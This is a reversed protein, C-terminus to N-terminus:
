FYESRSFLREEFVHHMNLEIRRWATFAAVYVHCYVLVMNYSKKGFASNIAFFHGLNCYKINEVCSYTYLKTFKRIWYESLREVAPCLKGSWKLTIKRNRDTVGSLWVTKREPTQANSQFSGTKTATSLAPKTPIQFPESCYLLKIHHGTGKYMCAHQM